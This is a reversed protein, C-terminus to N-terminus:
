QPVLVRVRYYRKPLETAGSDSINTVGGTGPFSVLPTWTTAPLDTAYELVNTANALTTFRIEVNTEVASIDLIQPWNDATLVVGYNNFGAHFNTSGDRLDLLGQNVVLGYAELVSGNVPRLTGNNTLTGTITLLGGCDPQVVGGSDVTVSGNITGCGTLASGARIRLGKAFVHVGGLLHYTATRVGDGVVFPPANSVTTSRTQITGASFSVVSNTGNTVTLRDVTVTGGSQTFMGHGTRGIVLEATASPNAVALDGATMQIVGTANSLVGAVLNSTIAVAAGAIMLTATASIGYGVEASRATCQGNSLVVQGTGANFIVSAGVNSASGSGIRLRDLMLLGGDQLLTGNGWRGVALEATGASNTVVLMGGSLRVFGYANSFTGAVLNSTITTVGGAVLLAGTGGVRNGVCVSRGLFTGNSVVLQGSGCNGVVVAQNTVQLQGGDVWVAGSAYRGQGIFLSAYQNTGGTVTLNGFSNSRAGLLCFSGLVKGGAVIMQGVGNGGICTLFDNTTILAGGTVLVLGTTGAAEGLSLHQPAICQGSMVSLAGYGGPAAGLFIGAQASNTQGVQLLGNSVVIQGAGYVGVISYGNSCLLRGGALTLAGMSNTEYGLFMDGTIRNTGGAALLSGAGANGVVMTVNSNLLLSSDYLAAAGDLSFISDTRGAFVLAANTMVLGGGSGIMGSSHICLPTNTSLDALWLTNTPGSDGDVTLDNITLSDLFGSATTADATVTKSIANTILVSQTFDPAVGVSWNTAEHWYGASDSIWSNAGAVTTTSAINSFPSFVGEIFARVRYYYALPAAEGIDVYNTCNAPVTAIEIFNTGDRSRQVAFGTEDSANDQWSLALRLFPLPRVALDSPAAPPPSPLITGNNTLSADFQVRGASADITGTNTVEGLFRITADNTAVILGTNIVPSNVIQTPCSVLMVGEILLSSSNITGCGTLVSNSAITLGGNFNHTGSVLDLVATQVGDGVTLPNSLGTGKSQITGASFTITGRSGAYLSNVSLTGGAVTVLGTGNGWYGVSLRDAQFCGASVTLQGLGNYYGVFATNSIASFNGGAVEVSGTAGVNYGFYLSASSTSVLTGGAVALTGVGSNGVRLEENFTLTGNNLKATGDLIFSGRQLVWVSNSVRLAGGANITCGNLITLPVSLGANALALTNTSGLPASITLRTITLSDPYSDAIRGDITVVKSLENTILIVHSNTPRLGLSWNVADDWFGNGSGIWSNTQGQVAGCLWGNLLMPVVWLLPRRFWVGSTMM